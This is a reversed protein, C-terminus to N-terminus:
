AFEGDLRSRLEEDSCPRCPMMALLAIRRMDTVEATYDSAVAGMSNPQRNYSAIKKLAARLRYNETSLYDYSEAFVYEVDDDHIKEREWTVEPNDYWQLWIIGPPDSM